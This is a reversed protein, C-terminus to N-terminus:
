LEYHAFLVEHRNLMTSNILAQIIGMDEKNIFTKIYKNEIVSFFTVHDIRRRLLVPVQITRYIPESSVIILLDPDFANIQATLVIYRGDTLKTKYSTFASTQDSM